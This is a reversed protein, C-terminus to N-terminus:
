QSVIMRNKRAVALLAERTKAITQADTRRDTNTVSETDTATEMRILVICALIVFDETYATGHVRTEQSL